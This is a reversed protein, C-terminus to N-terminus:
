GLLPASLSDSAVSPRGPGGAAAQKILMGGTTVQGMFESANFRNLAVSIAQVDRYRQEGFQRIDNLMGDRVNADCFSVEEGRKSTETNQRKKLRMYLGGSVCCVAILWHSTAFYVVGGVAPSTALKFNALQLENDNQVTRSIVTAKMSSTFNDLQENQESLTLKFPLMKARFEDEYHKLLKESEAALAEPDVVATDPAFRRFRNGFEKLFEERASMLDVKVFGDRLNTAKDASDRFVDAYNTLVRFFNSVTIETGKPASPQPFDVKLLQDTFDDLLKFFNPNIVSVEGSYEEYTVDLGPHCLGSCRTTIFSARLREAMQKSDDNNLREPATHDELHSTMKERCEEPTAGDQYHPWDRVLFHLHGFAASNHEILSCAKQAFTTVYDFHGLLNDDLKNQVNYILKASLLATLGFITSSQSKSLKGDFAGQTQLRDPPRLQITRFFM